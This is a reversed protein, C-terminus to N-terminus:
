CRSQTSNQMEDAIIVSDTFTRGRMFGLPVIELCGEFMVDIEAMSYYQNLADLLPRIYPNM